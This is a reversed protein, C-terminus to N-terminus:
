PQKFRTIAINKDKRGAYAFGESGGESVYCALSAAPTSPDTRTAIVRGNYDVITIAGTAFGRYLFVVALKDQAAKLAWAVMGPEPPAIRMKRLVEGTHSIVYILGTSRLLYVNGDPGLAADGKIAFYNGSGPTGPPVFDYEGAEAKLRAEEDEPEHIKKLLKGTADFLGTFVSQIRQGALGSLLIEGTKFVAMQYPLFYDSDLRVKQGPSGTGFSVIYVGYDTDWAGMYVQGDGTVFFPIATLDPSLEFVKFSRLVSGSPAIKYVPSQSNKPKRGAVEKDPVRVYINGSDDCKSLLNIIPGTLKVTATARTPPYLSSDQAYGLFPLALLAILTAVALKM